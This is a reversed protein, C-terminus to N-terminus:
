DLSLVDAMSYLGPKKDYVWRAARLAGHAFVSRDQARHTLEIREGDGAFIISHDGVVSGGRLTAFGIAKDPRAGTLGDRTRVAVDNLDVAAGEAAAEGIMLATGSPADVKHRHHMEVIEIDYDDGLAASAQRVLELLLNLGPSMNGAKVIRSHRAAALFREDDNQSFGTTGVILAIRAQAALEAYYVSSAPTSFDIVVDANAFATLPDSEVQVGIAGVGALTGADSGLDGSGQHDLAAVLSLDNANFVTRIVERGM